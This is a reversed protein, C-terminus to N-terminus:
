AIELELMRELTARNAIGTLADTSALREIWDSREVLATELRAKRIAVAAMDAIAALGNDPGGAPRGAFDALLAGEAEESGGLDGAILPLAVMSGAGTGTAPRRERVVQAVLQQADDLGIVDSEEAPTANEGAVAAPVLVRAVPDLLYIATTAAGSATLAEEALQNLQSEVDRGRAVTRAANKLASQSMVPDM